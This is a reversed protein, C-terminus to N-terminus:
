QGPTKARMRFSEGKFRICSGGDESLRDMVRFGLFDHIQEVELNSILITPRRNNYRENLLDFMLNRETDSGFQVGVEDLVLLDVDAFIKVIEAETERGGKNWTDKVRRLFRQVTAFMATKGNAIWHMAIAAALHGKGTGPAGFFILSRGFASVVDIDRAYAMSMELVSMREPTDPVFNEFSRETLRLPICAEGLKRTWEQAKQTAEAISKEAAEKTLREQKCIPCKSWVERGLASLNKSQYEGHAACVLLKGHDTQLMRGAADSFVSVQKNNEM